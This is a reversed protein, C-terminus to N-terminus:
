GGWAETSTLRSLLGAWENNNLYEDGSIDRQPHRWALRGCDLRGHIPAFLADVLRSNM